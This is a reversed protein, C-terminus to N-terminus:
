FDKNRVTRIIPLSSERIEPFTLLIGVEDTM